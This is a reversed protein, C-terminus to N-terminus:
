TLFSPPSVGEMKAQIFGPGFVFGAASNVRLHIFLYVRSEPEFWIVWGRIQLTRKRSLGSCCGVRWPEVQDSGKAAWDVPLGDVWRCM